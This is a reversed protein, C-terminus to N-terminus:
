RRARDGGTRIRTRDADVEATPEDARAADLETM